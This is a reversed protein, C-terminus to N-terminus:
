ASGGLNRGLMFMGAFAALDFFIAAGRAALLSDWVGSWGFILEFPVYAYYNAPGYTDGSPVNDPFAGSGYIPEGSSIRDAGVVGAYGVDIVGSDGINLAIRFAMLSVAALALVAFPVTPRLGQGAGRFGIWLMRGLLYILAPYVLPVSVGIEANNFFVHSIGFSLLVLLDLHVVRRMRRFDTLGLLFILSLPIWVFPANLVHGFQGERGRAMPWIAAAGNWAEAVDGTSGDVIVLAVRGDGNPDADRYRVEWRSGEVSPSVNLRGYESRSDAVVQERNAVAVARAATVTFGEPTPPLSSPEEIADTTSGPTPAQASADTSFAGVAALAALATAALLRVTAHLNM